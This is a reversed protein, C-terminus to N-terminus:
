LITASSPSTQPVAGSHPKGMQVLGVPKGRTLDNLFINHAAMIRKDELTLLDELNAYRLRQGYTSCIGKDYAHRMISTWTRHPLLEILKDQNPYYEQLLQEEEDTWHPNDGQPYWLVIEEPQETINWFICLRFFHASLKRITVKEIFEELLQRQDAITFIDSHWLEGVKMLLEPYNLVRKSESKSNTSNETKLKELPHPKRLEAEIKIKRAQLKHRMDRDENYAEQDVEPDSM